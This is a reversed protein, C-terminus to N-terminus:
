ATGKSAPASPPTTPSCGCRVCVSTTSSRPASATIAPTSRCASSQNAEVTDVGDDQLNYAELKAFLGIGRGEHGRIYLVVGRGEEAVLQFARDLQKGCDCRLSGFVDGTLCESHVRTLVEEGDGIDGMVFAIHERSDVESRYGVAV